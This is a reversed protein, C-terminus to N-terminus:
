DAFVLVMFNVLMRSEVIQMLCRLSQNQSAKLTAWHYGITAVQRLAGPIGPLHRLM